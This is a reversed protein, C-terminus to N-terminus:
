KNIELIENVLNEYMACHINVIESAVDWNKLISAAHIIKWYSQLLNKDFSSSSSISIKNEKKDFGKLNNNAFLEIQSNFAFAEMSKNISIGLIIYNNHVTCLADDSIEFNNEKLSKLFSQKIDKIASIRDKEKTLDLM